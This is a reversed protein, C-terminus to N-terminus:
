AHGPLTRCSLLSIRRRAARAAPRLDVSSSRERSSLLPRALSRPRRRAAAHLSSSALEHPAGEVAVAPDDRPRRRLQPDGALRQPGLDPPEAEDALLAQPTSDEGGTACLPSRALRLGGPPAPPQASGPPPHRAVRTQADTMRSENEEPRGSPRTQYRWVPTSPRTPTSMRTTPRKVRAWAGQDNLSSHDGTSPGSGSAREEAALAAPDQDALDREERHRQPEGAHGVVGLGHPHDAASARAM